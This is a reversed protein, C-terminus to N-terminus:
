NWRLREVIMADAIRYVDNALAEPEIDPYVTLLGTIAAMAFRDRLEERKRKDEDFSKDAM